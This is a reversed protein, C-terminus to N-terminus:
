STSGSTAAIGGGHGALLAIVQRTEADWLRVKGDEGCSAVLRGDRSLAVGWVPGAHDELTAVLHEVAGSTRHASSTPADFSWLRVTGDVGRSALHQGDASVAVSWVMGSHLRVAVLLTRDAEEHCRWDEDV